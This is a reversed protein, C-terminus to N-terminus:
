GNAAAPRRWFRSLDRELVLLVAIALAIGLPWYFLETRPRITEYRQAAPEIEDIVEYIRQLSEGDEALFYRGGTADAIQKLQPEDFKFDQTTGRAAIRSGIGIVYVKVNYRVALRIAEEPSIEGTTNAGDTFLVLVRKDADRERMRKVGLGIADGLATRNGAIGLTAIRLLDAAANRDFTLPVYLYPKTAFLIIGVRDGVRRMIFQQGLDKVVHVRAAPLDGVRMDQTDMSGSLDIALLLDRGTVPLELSLGAWQPRAAALVLAIWALCVLILRVPRQGGVSPKPLDRLDDGFPTVLAGRARTAASVGLRAVIFPLALAALAWPWALEFM